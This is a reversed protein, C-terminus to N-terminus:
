RREAPDQAPRAARQEAEKRAFARLTLANDVLEAVLCVVVIEYFHNYLFGFFGPLDPRPAPAWPWHFPPLVGMPIAVLLM